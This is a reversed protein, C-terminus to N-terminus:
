RTRSGTVVKTHRKQQEIFSNLKTRGDPSLIELLRRYSDLRAERYAALDTVPIGSTATSLRARLPAIVTHLHIMEARLVRADEPSFKMARAFLKVRLEEDSSPSTRIANAGLIQAVLLDRDILEPNTAGDVVVRLKGAGSPQANVVSTPNQVASQPLASSPTVARVIFLTALFVRRMM